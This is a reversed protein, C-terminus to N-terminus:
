GDILPVLSSSHTVGCQIIGFTGDDCSVVLNALPSSLQQDAQEDSLVPVVGSPLFHLLEIRGRETVSIVKLLM